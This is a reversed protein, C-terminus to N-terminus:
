QGVYFAAYRIGPARSNSSNNFVRCTFGSATPDIGAVSFSGLDSSTSASYLSCLVMPTGGMTADFTVPIDVYSGAPITTSAVSGIQIEAPLGELQISCEFIGEEIKNMNEASLAPASGNIWITKDYAM